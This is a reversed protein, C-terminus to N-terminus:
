WHHDGCAARQRRHIHASAAPASRSFFRGITRVWTALLANDPARLLVSPPPALLTLPRRHLASTPTPAAVRLTHVVSAAPARPHLALLLRHYPGLDRALRQGARPAACPAPPAPFAHRRHLASTPTPAAVRLTHVVSPAFARPHLALLLRHCPGLDRASCDRAPLPASPPSYLFCSFRPHSATPSCTDTLSKLAALRHLCHPRPHARRMLIRRPSSMCSACLAGRASSSSSHTTGIAIREAAEFFRFFEWRENGEVEGEDNVSARLGGVIRAYRGDRAGLGVSRCPSLFAAWAVVRGTSVTSSAPTRSLPPSNARTSFPLTPFSFSPPFDSWCPYWWRWGRGHM